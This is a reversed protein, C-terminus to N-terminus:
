ALSCASLGGWLGVRTRRPLEPVDRCQIAVGWTHPAGCHCEEWAALQSWVRVAARQEPDIQHSPAAACSRGVTVRPEVRTHHLRPAVRSAAAACREPPPPPTCRRAARPTASTCTQAWTWCCSCRRCGHRAGDAGDLPRQRCPHQRCTPRLIFTLPRDTSRTTRTSVVRSTPTISVFRASVQIHGHKAVSHLVSQGKADPKHLDAGSMVLSRLENVRGHRAAHFLAAQPDEPPLRHSMASRSSRVSGSDSAHNHRSTSPTSDERARWEAADRRSSM